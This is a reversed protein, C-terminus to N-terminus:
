EDKEPIPQMGGAAFSALNPLVLEIRTYRNIKSEARITGGLGEVAMQVIYLGLGSGDSRETGRFFMEFIRGLSEPAVGIGNDELIITVSDTGIDVFINLLNDALSTNLYKIANSLLNRFIIGLRFEDSIFPLHDEQIELRTHLREANPLHQLERLSNSVVRNLNVTKAVMESNLAVSHDLIEHVFHDLRLMRSEILSLYNAVAQTQDEDKLLGLLGLTTCLPSRIDHSVKYVFNDMEFTRQQLARLTSALNKETQQKERTVAHQRITRHIAPALRTLNGRLIFDQAGALMTEVAMEEGVAAALVIIPIDNHHIAMYEMVHLGDWVPHELDVLLIDWAHEHLARELEESETIREFSVSYGAGKLYELVLGTDPESEDIFLVRLHCPPSYSPYNTYHWTVKREGSPNVETSDQESKRKQLSNDIIIKNDM